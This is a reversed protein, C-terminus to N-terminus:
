SAYTARSVVFRPRQPVDSFLPNFLARVKEASRAEYALRHELSDWIGMIGAVGSGDSDWVAVIGKFGPNNELEQVAQVWIGDLAAEWTEKSDFRSQIVFLAVVDGQQM